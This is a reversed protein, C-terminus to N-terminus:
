INGIFLISGKNKPKVNGYEITYAKGAVTKISRSYCYVMYRNNGLSKVGIQSLDVGGNTDLVVIEPNTRFRYVVGFIGTSTTFILHENIIWTSVYTTTNSIISALSITQTVTSYTSNYRVEILKTSPNYYTIYTGNSYDSTNVGLGLLTSAWNATTIGYVSSVGGVGGGTTLTTPNYLRSPYKSTYFYGYTATSLTYITGNTSWANNYCTATSPVIKVIYSGTYTLFCDLNVMYALKSVTPPTTTDTVLPLTTDSIITFETDTAM